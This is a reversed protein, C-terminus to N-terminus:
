FNGHIPRGRPRVDVIYTYTREKFTEAPYELINGNIKAVVRVCLEASCAPLQISHMIPIPMPRISDRQIEYYEEGDDSIEISYYCSDKNHIVWNFYLKNEYIGGFYKITNDQTFAIKTSFLFLLVLLNKKMNTLYNLVFTRIIKSIHM